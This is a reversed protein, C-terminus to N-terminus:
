FHRITHTLATSCETRDKKRKYITVINADKWQARRLQNYCFPYCPFLQGEGKLHSFLFQLIHLPVTDAFQCCM